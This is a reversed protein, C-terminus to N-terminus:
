PSAPWEIPEPTETDDVGISAISTQTQEDDGEDLVQTKEQSEVEIQKGQDDDVPDMSVDTSDITEEVLTSKQLAPDTKKKPLTKGPDRPPLGFLTSQKAVQKPKTTVPQPLLKLSLTFYLV